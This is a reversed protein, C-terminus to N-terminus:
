IFAIRRAPVCCIAAADARDPSGLGKKRLDRKSDVQIRGKENKQWSRYQCEEALQKDSPDFALKTKQNPDLADRLAFAVEDSRSQFTVDDDPKVGLKVGIVSVSDSLGGDEQIQLVRSWVGQGLGTRDIMVRDAGAQVALDVIKQAQAMLDETTWEDLYRLRDGERLYAVSPDIGGGGIDVGLVREGATDAASWREWAKIIWESPVVKEASSLYFRGKVKTEWLGLLGRELWRHRKDEVWDYEVLGPYIKERAKVNPTEEADINIRYWRSAEEPNMHSDFFPGSECIPNGIKLHRSDSGATIGEFGDVVEPEMGAAEDEIFLVNAAEHLGAVSNPADSAFGFAQWDDALELKTQLMRGPLRRRAKKYLKRVERWLLTKVQRGTPATTIVLAPRRTFIWWLVLCAATFTKGSAYCAAVSVRPYDRVANGIDVQGSWIRIGLIDRCFGEFDSYYQLLPEFQEIVRGRCVAHWELNGRFWRDFPSVLLSLRNRWRRSSRIQTRLM